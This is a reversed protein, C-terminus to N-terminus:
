PLVKGPATDSAAALAARLQAMARSLRSKVTGRPCELVAAMEKENLDMFYRLSIVLRDADGLSNLAALLEEEQERALVAAEPSPAADGSSRDAGARAALHARRGASRLRNRAENAVIALLWARFSAGRKFRPLAYFAKVFAEQVADEAEGTSGAILFATRFAVDQHRTVLVNYANGDGKTAREVLEQEELPRGEM